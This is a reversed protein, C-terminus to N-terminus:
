SGAKLWRKRLADVGSFGAHVGGGKEEDAVAGAVRVAVGLDLMEGGFPAGTMGVPADLHAEDFVGLHQDGGAEVPGGGAAPPDDHQGEDEVGGAVHLHFQGGGDGLGAQAM